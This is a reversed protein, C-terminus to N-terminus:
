LHAIVGCEAVYRCCHRRRRSVLPRVPREDSPRSGRTPHWRPGSDLHSVRLKSQESRGRLGAGCWAQLVTAARPDIDFDRVFEDLPVGDSLWDFLEQVPLRMGRVCPTGSM